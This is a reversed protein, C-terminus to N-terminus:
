ESFCRARTHDKIIHMAARTPTLVRAELLLAPKSCAELTTPACKKEIKTNCSLKVRYLWSNPVPVQMQKETGKTGFFAQGKYWGQNYAFCGSHHYYGINIGLKPGHQEAALRCGEITTPACQKELKKCSREVRGLHSNPVPDKMDQETGKTGFFVQGKYAGSNYQYCGSYSYHGDKIPKTYKLEKAAVRCGHQTTPACKKEIKGM